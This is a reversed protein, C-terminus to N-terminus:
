NVSMIIKIIIRNFINFFVDNFVENGFIFKKNNWEIINRYIILKIIILYKTFREKDNNEKFFIKNNNFLSIKIKYAGFDIGYIM